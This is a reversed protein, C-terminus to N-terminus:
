KIEEGYLCWMLSNTTRDWSFKRATDMGGLNARTGLKYEARMYEILQEIQADGLKAWNGQKFFWKGDFAPELEDISILNSNEETCFETHASYNTTIVPKGCAMMELLELNWGEARSPFVGCDADQMTRVVDYHSAHWPVIKIKKAMGMPSKLYLSEWERVKDPELFINTPMMWLEVNDTTTFARNFANVLVDHGKRVEWKGANLFVYNRYKPKPVPHFIETNVGLPAVHSPTTINNNKLIDQAWRSAVVLEDPYALHHLEKQNFRDLEFFPFAVYKGKGVRKDLAFQHWINLCPADHHFLKNVGQDILKSEEVGTRGHPGYPILAVDIKNQCFQKYVEFGAIGYGTYGFASMLNLQM